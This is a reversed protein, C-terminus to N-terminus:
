IHSVLISREFICIQSKSILYIAEGQGILALFTNEVNIDFPSVTLNWKPSLMESKEVIQFNVIRLLSQGLPIQRRLNSQLTSIFNRTTEEFWGM